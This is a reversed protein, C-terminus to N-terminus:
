IYRKVRAWLVDVPVKLGRTVLLPKNEFPMCYPCDFTAATEVSGVYDAVDAATSGVVVVVDFSCGRPGWLWYNNHSSIAPPLGLAPGFFDIAGAEGYNSTLICAREREDPTLGHYVRAVAAALEPWGHQDAFHQPLAGLPNREDIGLTPDLGLARQWRVTTEEPLLPKALPATIAGVVLVVPPLAVTLWSWRRSRELAVAGAAFLAPYVPTVYYSKGRGVILLILLAVYTWALMRFRGGDQRWFAVLGAIWIPAALPNLIIVQEGLVALPSRTLHKLDRANETFELTPWGNAVQWALHPVVLVAALAIGAWLWRNRWECRVPTLVFGAALAIVLFAMGHKNEFGIGVLAGVALWGRPDGGRLLRVILLLIATWIVVDFANTTLIGFTGVFIPAVMVPVLAAIMARRGGGLARVVAATLLVSAGAALAPLLRLATRSDGFVPRVIRLLLELLPPHDVYGAALRDSCALYYLEDRFYGYGRSTAVHFLVTVVALVAALAAGTSPSRAPAARGADDLAEAPEDARVPLVPHREAM